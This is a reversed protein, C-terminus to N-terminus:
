RVSKTLNRQRDREAKIFPELEHAYVKGNDVHLEVLEVPPAVWTAVMAPGHRHCWWCLEGTGRERKVGIRLHSTCWRETLDIALLERRDKPLPRPASPEYGWRQTLSHVREVEPEAWRIPALVEDTWHRRVDVSQLLRAYSYALVVLRDAAILNLDALPALGAHWAAFGLDYAALRAARQLRDLDALAEDQGAFGLAALEPGTIPVHADITTISFPRREDDVHHTTVPDDPDEIHVTPGGGKGGGPSGSGPTSSPYGGIEQHLNRVARGVRQVSHHLMSEVNTLLRVTSRPLDATTTM